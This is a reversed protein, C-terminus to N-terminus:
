RKRFALAPPRALGACADVLRVSAFLEPAAVRVGLPELLLGFEIRTVAAWFAIRERFLRLALRSQDEGAHLVAFQARRHLREFDGGLDTLYARIVRRKARRLARIRRPHLGTAGLFADDDQRLLRLLPRYREMSFDDSGDADRCAILRRLLLAWAGALVLCPLLLAPLFSLDGPAAFM